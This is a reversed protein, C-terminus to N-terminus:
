NVAASRIALRRPMVRSSMSWNPKSECRLAAWAHASPRNSRSIEAMTAGTSSSFLFGVASRAGTVRSWPRRSVM